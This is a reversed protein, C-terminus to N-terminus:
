DPRTNDDNMKGGSPLTYGFKTYLLKPFIPLPTIILKAAKNTNGYRSLLPTYIPGEM